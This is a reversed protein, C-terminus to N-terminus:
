KMNKQLNDRLKLLCVVLNSSMILNTLCSLLCSNYGHKVSLINSHVYSRMSEKSASPNATVWNSIVLFFSPFFKSDFNQKLFLKLFKYVKELAKQIQPVRKETFMPVKLYIIHRLECV